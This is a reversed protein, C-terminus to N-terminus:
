EQPEPFPCRLPAEPNRIFVDGGNETTVFVAAADLFPAYYTTNWCGFVIVDRAQLSLSPRPMPIVVGTGLAGEPYPSILTFALRQYDLYRYYASRDQEGGGAPYYRPYLARGERFMANPQALFEALAERTYGSAEILQRSELDALIEDASRKEYRPKAAWDTAPIFAGILLIIILTPILKAFNIKEFFTEASNPSDATASETRANQRKLFWASLQLAGAAYFVCVLWDVPVVYRGGSTFGLSNTALYAFFILASLLAKMKNRRWLTAAGLAILAANFIMLTANTSNVNGADWTKKWYPADSKVVNWLDDFVFTSPLSVFSAVINHSFHNLISCVANDCQLNQKNKEIIRLRASSLNEFKREKQLPIEVGSGLGYREKLIVEIRYYYMYFMPIGKSQNRIEWPLTVAFLGLLILLGAVVSKRWNLKLIFPLALLMIPLLPLAHTRTMLTLGFIAGAWILLNKKEPRQIWKLLFLLLAAIGLVTPFDTLMMKPSATDIWRAAVIANLGRLAILTGASIGLARSHLEKGILYVLAPFVAFLIAQATLLVDFNQGWLLHLYVLFASYIARDFYTNNFLGQGILAYQAGLDYTASDSYPYIPNGATDPLFYNVQLPERAWLFAALVWILFFLAWDLHTKNFLMKREFLLFAAGVVVSLLAQLGLVPVGAGYWYDAPYAVGIGSLAVFLAFAAFALSVVIGVKLIRKDEDDFASEADRKAELFLLLIAGFSVVLLWILIPTLQTLYSALRGLRYYPAFLSIWTILSSALSLALAMGRRQSVFRWLASLRESRRMLNSTWFLLALALIFMGAGLFIREPSYGFLIANKSESPSAIIKWFALFAGLASLGVYTILNRRTSNKLM